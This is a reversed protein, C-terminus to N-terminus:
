HTAGKRRLASSWGFGGDVGWVTLAQDVSDASTPFGSSWGPSFAYAGGGWGGLISADSAAAAMLGFDTKVTPSPSMSAAFRMLATPSPRAVGVAFLPEGWALLNGIQVSELGHDHGHDEGQAMTSIGGGTGMQYPVKTYPPAVPPMDNASFNIQLAFAGTSGGFGGAVRIFFGQGATVNTVDVKATGGYGYLYKDGKSNLSADFVTVRPALLSLNTSQVTASFRGINNSPITVWYWETQGPDTIQLNAVTIQNTAPNRAGDMSVADWYMLNSRGGSNWHDYERPDYVSRIGSIDDSNLTQKISTYYSWMVAQGIQSHSMGLAHGFEHIAVTKLDYHADIMWSISSNLVIDGALTGGNIPPPSYAAGLTGTSLPIASFRIDGFRDDGQQWGSSGISQGADSVQVLNINAYRQWVAAASAIEEQWTTRSYRADLTQFLTSPVGGLTTGDPVFSYTIREGYNWKANLTAYLLLRSELGELKPRSRRDPAPSHGGRSRRQSQRM